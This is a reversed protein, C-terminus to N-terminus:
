QFQANIANLTQQNIEIDTRLQLTSAYIEFIDQSIGAAANEGIAERQAVVAPDDTDPPAIDDLRVIIARDDAALVRVEGLSMEFVATNFDPPTGEIFTRRTIGEEGTAELGLTEFGTLPAIQDALEEARAMVAQQTNDARVAEVLEDRVDDIPRLSPPTIEDVTLVFRGGDSLDRLQPFDGVEAAAAAARFNDYAAIGESVDATWAITGLEMDTREALDAMTAGGALLDNIADESVNIYDRAAEMALEERLDGSVEELTIEQAALVANMRFLAPGFSTRFPGVVDGPDASFVADAAAGLDDRSLDGMDVDALALGREAVLEEFTVEGAELRAAAEEARDRDVYVLREVLRREPQVFDDIREQYLQAIAQEPVDMQDQIMAPTLWAYTIQRTEPATFEDPNAEYYAQQDAETAGPVPATLDGDDVVAWTIDRTESTFQVLVDALAEPTPVGGVVAGQLLTRATEDRLENEFEVPTQGLQQLALRYTDRNFGGAGQFQPIAQLRELVNEDGVSVGLRDAENDLTRLLIVQNLAIQDVGFAQAQQFSIRQGVQASIAEIQQDLARQYAQVSVEKDGVTGLTRITGGLGGSGFGALGVLIIGVIIWAGYRPKKKEAM